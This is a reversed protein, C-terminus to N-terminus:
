VAPSTIPSTKKLERTGWESDLSNSVSAAVPPGARRHSRSKDQKWDSHETAEAPGPDWSGSHFQFNSPGIESQAM